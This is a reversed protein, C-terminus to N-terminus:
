QIAQKMVEWDQCFIRMALNHVPNRKRSGLAVSKTIFNGWFVLIKNGTSKLKQLINSSIALKPHNHSCSDM